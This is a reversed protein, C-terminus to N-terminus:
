RFIVGIGFRVRPEAPDHSLPWLHSQELQVVPYTYAAEGVRGERTGAVSGVVTLFRGPAVEAPDLFGEARALFRGLPPQETRPRGSGALPYALVEVETGDALTATQIVLGGWQVRQGRAAEMGALAAPPTLDPAVGATDMRHGACAFLAALLPVTLLAATPITRPM